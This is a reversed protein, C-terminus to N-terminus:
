KTMIFQMKPVFHVCKVTLTTIIGVNILTNVQSHRRISYLKRFGEIVQYIFKQDHIKSNPIRDLDIDM